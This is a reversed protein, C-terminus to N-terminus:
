VLFVLDCACRRCESTIIFDFARIPSLPSYCPNYAVERTRNDPKM